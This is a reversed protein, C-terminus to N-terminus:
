LLPISFNFRSAIRSVVALIKSADHPLVGLSGSGVIAGYGLAGASSITGATLGLGITPVFQFQNPSDQRRKQFKNRM